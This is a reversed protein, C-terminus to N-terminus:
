RFQFSLSLALCNAFDVLRFDMLYLYMTMPKCTSAVLKALKPSVARTCHCQSYELIGLNVVLIGSHLVVDSFGDVIWFVVFCVIRTLGTLSLYSFSLM